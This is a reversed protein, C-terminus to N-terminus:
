TARKKICLKWVENQLAVPFEIAGNFFIKKEPDCYHRVTDKDM